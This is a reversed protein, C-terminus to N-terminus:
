ALPFRARVTDFDFNRIVKFCPPLSEYPIKLKAFVNEFLTVIMTESDLGSPRLVGLASFYSKVDERLSRGRGGYSEGLAAGTQIDIDFTLAGSMATVIDLDDTGFNHWQRDLTDYLLLISPLGLVETGYKIQKAAAAIKKRAHDGITRSSSSGRGDANVEFNKDEALEKVEFLLESEGVLVKYDPTPHDAEEKLKEFKLNNELLFDKFAKESTTVKNKKL